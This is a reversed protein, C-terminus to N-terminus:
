INKPSFLHRCYVTGFFPIEADFFLFTATPASAVIYGLSFISSSPGEGTCDPRHPQHRYRILNKILFRTYLYGKCRVWGYLGEARRIPLTYLPDGGSTHIFNVVRPWELYVTQVIYMNQIHEVTHVNFNYFVHLFYYLFINQIVLIIQAVIYKYPWIIHRFTTTSHSLQFLIIIIYRM